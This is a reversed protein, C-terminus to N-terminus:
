AFKIPSLGDSPVDARWVLIYEPIDDTPLVRIAIVTM